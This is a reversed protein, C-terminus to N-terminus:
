TVFVTAEKGSRLGFYDVLPNQGNAQGTFKTKATRLFRNQLAPEGFFRHVNRRDSRRSTILVCFLEWIVNFSKNQGLM